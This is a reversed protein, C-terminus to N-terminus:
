TEKDLFAEGVLVNFIVQNLSTIPQVDMERGPRQCERWVIVVFSSGTEGTKACSMGCIVCVVCVCVCVCM